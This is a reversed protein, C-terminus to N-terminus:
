GGDNSYLSLSLSLSASISLCVADTATGGRYSQSVGRFSSFVAAVKVQHSGMVAMRYCRGVAM